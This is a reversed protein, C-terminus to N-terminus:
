LDETYFLISKRDNYWTKLGSEISRRSYCQKAISLNKNIPINVYRFIAYRKGWDPLPTAPLAQRPSLPTCIPIQINIQKQIIKSKCVSLDLCFEIMVCEGETVKPSLERLTKRLM